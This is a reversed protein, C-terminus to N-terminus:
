KHGHGEIGYKETIPDKFLKIKIPYITLLLYLAFIIFILILSIYRLVYPIPELFLIKYTFFESLFIAIFFTSIDIIIINKKTFKTYTYFILPIIIIISAFGVLKAFFYNPNEGYFYGDVLSYIFAPTLAIKIHEWVSENVASFVGVVKNHGSKDYLFHSLIGLISIFLFGLIFVMM